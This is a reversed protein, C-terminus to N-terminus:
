EHEVTGDAYVIVRPINKREAKRVTSWTGSRQTNVLGSSLMVPDEEPCAILIACMDVIVQNRVMYPAPKEGWDFDSVCAHYMGDSPPHVHVKYGLAKAIIHADVDAGICDGHHFWVAGDAKLEALVNRLAYGQKHSVGLRTGTFGVHEVENM